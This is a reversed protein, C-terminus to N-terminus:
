ARDIPQHQYKTKGVNRQAMAERILAALAMIAYTTAADPFEEMTHVLGHAAKLADGKNISSHLANNYIRIPEYTTTTDFDNM